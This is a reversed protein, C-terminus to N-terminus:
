AWTLLLVLIAPNSAASAHHTTEPALAPPEIATEIVRVSETVRACSALQGSGGVNVLKKASAGLAFDVM